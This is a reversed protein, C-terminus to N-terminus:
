RRSKRKEDRKKAKAIEVQKRQAIEAASQTRQLLSKQSPSQKRALTKIARTLRKTAKNVVKEAERPTLLKGEVMVGSNVVVAHRVIQKAQM